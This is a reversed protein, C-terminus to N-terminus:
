CIWSGSEVAHEEDDDDTQLLRYDQPTSMSGETTSCVRHVTVVIGLLLLILAFVVLLYVATGLSGFIVTVLLANTFIEPLLLLALISRLVPHKRIVHRYLGAVGCFAFISALVMSCDLDLTGQKGQCYMTAGFQIFLLSPFVLWDLCADAVESSFFMTRAASPSRQKLPQQVEETKSSPESLVLPISTEISPVLSPSSTKTSSM